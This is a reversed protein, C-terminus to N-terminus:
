QYRADFRRASPHWIAGDRAARGGDVNPAVQGLRQGKVPEYRHRRAVQLDQLTRCFTALFTLLLARLVRVHTNEPHACTHQRPADKSSHLFTHAPRKVPAFRLALLPSPFYSTIDGFEEMPEFTRDGLLKRYMLDGKAITLSSSSLADRSPADM